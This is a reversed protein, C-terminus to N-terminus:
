QGDRDTRRQGSREVAAEIAQRRSETDRVAHKLSDRLDAEKEEDAHLRQERRRFREDAEASLAVENEHLALDVKAGRFRETLAIHSPCIVDCCGCEICDRLGLTALADYDHTQAAVLLEQPLLRAPCAEACEGCRICPWETPDTRIEIAAAAIICNSAKAIPLEDSPLSYGMMSGGGILRIADGTYGGCYEILEAIPTGIPTEVNQPTRVGRGTVTVVRSILPEGHRALRQLAYVTGVNQCVYGIESPFQASPVEDGTLLEILQREGGAPYITPVEALKLRPDAIARAAAGIADHAAQKDREVAIVCLPAALLDTMLLAGDVIERAAERMLVDDCSIYPECEAGNVILIKCATSAALKTATPFVAGGLGSLGERM